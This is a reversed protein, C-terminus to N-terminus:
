QGPNEWPQPGQGAAPNPAPNSPTEAAATDPTEPWWAVPIRTGDFTVVPVDDIVVRRTAERQAKQSHAQTEYVGLSLVTQTGDVTFVLVRAIPVDGGELTVDDTLGVILGPAPNDQNATQVHVIRGITPTM